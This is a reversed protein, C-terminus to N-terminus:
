MSRAETPSIPKFNVGIDDRKLIKALDDRFKQQEEPTTYQPSNRLSLVELQDFGKLDRPTITEGDLYLTRVHSIEKLIEKTIPIMRFSLNISELKKLNKFAGKKITRLFTGSLNLHRLNELGRFTQADIEEIPNKSLNLFALTKLDKFTKPGITKIYNKQLDLRILQPMNVLINKDLEPIKNNSLNLFEVTEIEPIDSLRVLSILYHTSLDLTILKTSPDFKPPLIRIRGDDEQNLLMAGLSFSYISKLYEEKPIDNRADDIYADDINKNKDTRWEWIVEDKLKQPLNKFDNINFDRNDIARFILFSVESLVRYKITAPLDLQAIRNWQRTKFIQNAISSITLNQLSDIEQPEEAAGATHLLPTVGTILIATSLLLLITKKMYM